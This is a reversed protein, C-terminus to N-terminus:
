GRVKGTPHAQPGENGHPQPVTASTPCQTTPRRSQRPECVRSTSAHRFLYVCHDTLDRPALGQPNSEWRWCRRAQCPGRDKMFEEYKVSRRLWNRQALLASPCEREDARENRLAVDVRGRLLGTPNLFWPGRWVHETTESSRADPHNRGQVSGGETRRDAM